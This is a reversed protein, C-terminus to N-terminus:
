KVGTRRFLAGLRRNVCQFRYLSGGFALSFPLCKVRLTIM